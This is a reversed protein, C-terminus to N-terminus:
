VNSQSPSLLQFNDCFGYNDVDFPENWFNEHILQELDDWSWSTMSSTTSVTESNQGNSSSQIGSLSSSELILVSSEDVINPEVSPQEQLEQKKISKQKCDRQSVNGHRFRKRLQAHWYNKIENDTRGPLHKAITSWRNGLKNHLQIILEEEHKTYNGHRVDPRLYNIWRLRCSKGCRALGAYKPLERWNWHGYRQIYSKLKDDEEQSWAGKKLGKEDFYPTRGM